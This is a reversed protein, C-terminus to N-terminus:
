PLPSSLFRPPFVSITGTTSALVSRDILANSSFDEGMFLPDGAERGRWEREEEEGGCEAIGGVELGM